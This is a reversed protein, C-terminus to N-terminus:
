AYRNFNREVIAKNYQLWTEKVNLSTNVDYVYDKLLLYFNYRVDASLGSLQSFIFEYLDIFLYNVNNTYYFGHCYNSNIKQMINPCNEKLCIVKIEEINCRNSMNYDMIAELSDQIRKMDFKKTTIEYVHKHIGKQIVIDGPKKCATNTAFVSDSAGIIKTKQNDNNSLKILNSIIMLTTAGTDCSQSILKQCLDGLFKINSELMPQKPFNLLISSIKLYHNCLELALQYNEHDSQGEIIEILEVLLSSIEKDKKKAAWVKDISLTAKAINLPGSKKCPINLKIFKPRIINEYLARPNCEYFDKTAKYNNDYLRAIMIVFLIERFGFAKANFISEIKKSHESCISNKLKADEFLRDIISELTTTRLTYDDKKM